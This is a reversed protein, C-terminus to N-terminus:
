GSGRKGIAVFSPHDQHIRIVNRKASGVVQSEGRRFRTEDTDEGIRKITAKILMMKVSSRKHNIEARIALIV